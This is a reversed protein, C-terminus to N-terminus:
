AAPADAGTPTEDIPLATSYKVRKLMFSSNVSAVYPLHILRKRIFQHYSDIDRAAIRLVFDREGSM